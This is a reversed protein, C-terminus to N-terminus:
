CVCMRYLIVQGHPLRSHTHVEQVLQEGPDSFSNGDIVGPIGM